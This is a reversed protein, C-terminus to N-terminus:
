VEPLYIIRCNLKPKEGKPVIVIIRTTLTQGNHIAYGAQANVTRYKEKVSDDPIRVNLYWPKANIAGKKATLRKGTANTCNFEAVLIDDKSNSSNNRFPIMKICGTKNIVYLNLEYREYDEGKVEKSTGNSIYFGYELGNYQYPTNEELEVIQQGYGPMLWCCCLLLITLSKMLNKKVFIIEFRTKGMQYFLPWSM